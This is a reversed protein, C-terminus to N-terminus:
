ESEEPQYIEGQADKAGPPNTGELTLIYSAVRQMDDPRLDKEWAQMGKEPIGYKVSTFVAQIGGGHLWYADTLNPGIGGEGKTGHCSACHTDFVKKGEAIENEDTLAEVNSEDISNAMTEKYAAVSIAAQEMEIALEEEMLPAYGLVHYNLFYGVGFVISAYFMWKWWPPLHNDLEQIGDYDHNLLIAEEQEVPVANTWGKMISQYISEPQKGKKLQEKMLMKNMVQIISWGLVLIMIIIISIIGLLTLLLLDNATLETISTM